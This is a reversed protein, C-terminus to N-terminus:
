LWCTHVAWRDKEERCALTLAVREGTYSFLIEILIDSKEVLIYQTHKQVSIFSLQFFAASFDLVPSM